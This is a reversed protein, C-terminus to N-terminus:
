PDVQETRTSAPATGLASTRALSARVFRDDVLQDHVGSPDLRNLFETSGDVRTQKMLDVLTRTASPYPFAAFELREGHWDPHRRILGGQSPTRTLVRQIAAPRQPLYATAGTAGTLHGTVDERHTQAWRQADVVADTIGQVVRPAREILEQRVVVACCGHSRWVDGLFRLVTGSGNAEAVASFPDAVVFGDIQGAALASAMEAPPMVVLSVVGSRSGASGATAATTAANGRLGVQLGAAALMRQLLVNHVSWWYPIAVTGGALHEMRTIGRRVTLASGNAHGWGLVRAPVSRGFRLQVAFPLLLHVLDVEGVTFAQALAEWSRFLVPRASPVGYQAFLGLEHGLLVATADTIPLYGIRLERDLLRQAGGAQASTPPRVAQVAGNVALGGVVAAAAGRGALTLLSRRSVESM